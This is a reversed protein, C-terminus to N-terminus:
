CLWYVMTLSVVIVIIVASYPFLSLKVTNHEKDLIRKVRGELIGSSSVFNPHPMFNDFVISSFLTRPSLRWVKILAQAFAYPKKTLQIAFDDSAKEKEASLDRFIWYSLPAFFMIDRLFVMVWNSLADSRVIHALEHALVTELEEADLAKILGDSLVIVPNRRGMTFSRAFADKTVILHPIQINIQSCLNELLKFVGPYDEPLAFGYKKVIRRTGLISLGAKCLALIAVFLFLPTLIISLGWAGSCLWSSIIGMPRKLIICNYFQFPRYLLYAAIPIIFPITLLMSRSRSDRFNPIKGLLLALIYSILTGAIVYIIFPHIFRNVFITYAM